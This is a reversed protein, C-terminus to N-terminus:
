AAAPDVASTDGGEVRDTSDAPPSTVDPGPGRGTVARLEEEMETVTREAMSLEDHQVAIKRELVGITARQSEAFRAAVAVTEQDDIQQALAGRREITALETRAADLRQTSKAYAARVEDRAVRALALTQKM